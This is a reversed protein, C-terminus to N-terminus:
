RDEMPFFDQRIKDININFSIITKKIDHQVPPARHIVAAPFIILDGEEVDAVIREFTIPNIFESKPAGEPQDLYYVGSFNCVHVHWGHTSAKEYQQFWINTLKAEKYGYEYVLKTITPLIEPVAIQTWPRTFDYSNPYDLRTINDTFYEDSTVETDADASNIEALVSEKIDNHSGLKEGLIPFNM